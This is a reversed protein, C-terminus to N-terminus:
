GRGYRSLRCRPSRPEDLSFRAVVHFGCGNPHGRNTITSRAPPWVPRAGPVSM